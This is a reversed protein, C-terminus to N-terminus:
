DLNGAVAQIFGITLGALAIMYGSVAFADQISHEFVTWLVGWVISGLAFIVFGVIWTKKHDWGEELHLGWGVESLQGSCIALKERLKKPFRNLCVPDDEAHDPHQLRHKLYNEGVPPIVEAPAPKYIYEIRELPPLIEKDIQSNRIDVAQSRFMEFKVFRIGKLTRFLVLTRWKGRISRYATKLAQFLEKDSQLGCVEIQLLKSAYVGENYCLLLYLPEPPQPGANQAQPSSDVRIEHRPL